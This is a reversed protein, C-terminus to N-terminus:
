DMSRQMTMELQGLLRLKDGVTSGTRAVTGVPAEIVYRVGRRPRGIRWPAMAVDIDMVVDEANVYFVDIPIVMFHTHIGNSATILLGEGPALHPVGMLGKFRAWFTNAVRGQNILTTQRTVNDVWLTQKNKM